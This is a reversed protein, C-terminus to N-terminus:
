NSRCIRRYHKACYADNLIHQRFERPSRIREDNEFLGIKWANKVITRATNESCGFADQLFPYTVADTDLITIGEADHGFCMAAYTLFKKLPISLKGYGYMWRFLAQAKLHEDHTQKSKEQYVQSLYFSIDESNRRTHYTKMIKSASLARLNQHHAAMYIKFFLNSGKLADYTVRM